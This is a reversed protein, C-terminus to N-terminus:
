RLIMKAQMKQARKEPDDSTGLFIEHHPLPLDKNKTTAPDVFELFKWIHLEYQEITKPSANRHLRLYTIFEELASIYKM